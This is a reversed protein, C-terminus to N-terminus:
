KLEVELNRTEYWNTSEPLSIHEKFTISITYKGKQHPIFRLVSIARHRTVEFDKMLTKNNLLIQIKDIKYCDAPAYKFNELYYDFTMYYPKELRITDDTFINFRSSSCYMSRICFKEAFNVLIQHEKKAIKLTYIWFNVNTTDNIFAMELNEEALKKLKYKKIYGNLFREYNKVSNPSIIGIEDDTMGFAKESEKFITRISDVFPNYQNPNPSESQAKKIQELIWRDRLFANSLTKRIINIKADNETKDQCGIALFSLLIVSSLLKLAKM